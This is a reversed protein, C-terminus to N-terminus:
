NWRFADQQRRYGEQAQEVAALINALRVAKKVVTGGDLEPLSLYTLGEQLSSRCSDLWVEPPLEVVEFQEARMARLYAEAEAQTRFALFADAVGGSRHDPEVADRAILRDGSRGRLVYRAQFVDAMCIDEIKKSM